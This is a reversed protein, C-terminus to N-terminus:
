EPEDLRAMAKGLYGFLRPDVGRRAAEDPEQQHM